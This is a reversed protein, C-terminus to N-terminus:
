TLTRGVCAASTVPSTGHTLTTKRALGQRNTSTRSHLDGGIFVRDNTVAIANVAGDTVWFDQRPINSLEQAHVATPLLHLVVMASLSIMRLGTM